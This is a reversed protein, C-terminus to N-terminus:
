VLSSFAGELRAKVVRAKNATVLVLSPQSCYACLHGPHGHPIAGGAATATTMTAGM